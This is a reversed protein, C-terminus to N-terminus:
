EIRGAALSRPRRNVVQTHRDAWRVNGPEYNGNVDIRDLTYEPAGSATVDEPRPGLNAEIWAIFQPLDHWEPCVMIGRAGYYCYSSGPEYYCRQMMNHWTEYLPHGYLRHKASSGALSASLLRALNEPSGSVARRHCGCSVVRGERLHSLRIEKVEGCECRCLVYRRTRGRSAPRSAAESVVVLKGYRDGPLVTVKPM